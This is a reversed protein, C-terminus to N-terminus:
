GGQKEENYGVKEPFLLMKEELIEKEKGSLAGPYAKQYEKVYYIGMQREGRAEYYAYLRLYGEAKQPQWFIAEGCLRHIEKERAGNLRAAEEAQLARASRLSCDRGALLFALILFVFVAVSQRVTKQVAKIFDEGTLFLNRRFAAASRYRTEEKERVSRELVKQFATGGGGEALELIMRGLAYIDSRESVRGEYQEPAAYGPTGYM